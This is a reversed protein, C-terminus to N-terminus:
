NRAAMRRAREITRIVRHYKRIWMVLCSPNGVKAVISPDNEDFPNAGSHHMVYLEGDLFRRAVLITEEPYALKLGCADCNM